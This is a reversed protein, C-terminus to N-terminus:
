LKVIMIPTNRGGGVSPKIFYIGSEKESLSFNLQNEGAHINKMESHIIKGLINFFDFRVNQSLLSEVHVVIDGETPNPAIQQIVLPVFQSPREDIASLIIRRTSVALPVMVTAQNNAIITDAPTSSLLKTTAILPEIADLVFLPVILTATQNPALSEINWEFCPLNGPCFERWSGISPLAAGGSTTKTPYKFEIKINSLAVSGNNKATITFTDAMWQRYVLSSATITLGLDVKKPIDQVTNLIVNFNCYAENGKADKATYGVYTSGLKFTQNPQHSGFVSPAGCNDTAELAAFNVKASTGTTTAVIDSPCNTFIPAIKDNDCPNILVLAEEINISYDEVEGAEFNECATPAGDKKMSVRLSTLGLKASTPIRLSDSVSLSTNLKEFAKETDEFIKNGNFDIWVRFNLSPAYGDWSLGPSISLPYIQGRKLTIIKEKFDSYGVTYPNDLIKGSSNIFTGVQVEKIWESWPANSKSSCIVTDVVIPSKTIAITFRCTATNNKADRATYTVTSTGVSFKQGSKFNSSLTPVSCNDSVTPATWNVVLSDNPSLLVINQPCNSLIPPLNDTDCPNSVSVNAFDLNVIKKSGTGKFSMKMNQPVDIKNFNGGSNVVLTLPKRRLWDPLQSLNFDLILQNGSITATYTISQKVTLYEFVEQLPAMWVRDSGNKGWTNAIRELHTRFRDFTLGTSGNLSHTFENYWMKEGNVSQAAVASIKDRGSNLMDELLQRHLVRGNPIFDTKVSLGGIGITTGAQDLVLSQGRQYAISQYNVDGSPVVFLPMEIKNRTKDRVYTHNMDIETIYDQNSMTNTARAKHSFSHNFVDWGKEYLADLQQWTMKNVIRGDHADQGLANAANWALGAKFFLNNGCGDTFSLGSLTTGGCASTGGELAPLACTFGDVGGDDFTLSYAFDKDYRLAAKSLSPVTSLPADFHIIVRQASLCATIGMFVIWLLQSKNM